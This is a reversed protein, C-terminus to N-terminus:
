LRVMVLLMPTADKLSIHPYFHQSNPLLPTLSSNHNLLSGAHGKFAKSKNGLDTNQSLTMPNQSFNTYQYKTRAKFKKTYKRICVLSTKQSGTTYYTHPSKEQLSPKHSIKHKGLSGHLISTTYETMRVIESYRSHCSIISYKEGM